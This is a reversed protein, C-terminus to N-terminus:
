KKKLLWYGEKTGGLVIKYDHMKLDTKVNKRTTFIYPYKWGKMISSVFFYNSKGALFLDVANYVSNKTTGSNDYVMAVRNSSLLLGMNNYFRGKYKIMSEALVAYNGYPLHNFYNGVKVFIDPLMKDNNTLAEKSYGYRTMNDEIANFKKIDNINFRVFSVTGIILAVCLCEIIIKKHTIKMKSLIGIISLAFIVTVLMIVSTLIRAIGYFYYSISSILLSIVNSKFALFLFLILGIIIRSRLDKILFLCIMLRIFGYLAIYDFKFVNVFYPYYDDSIQKLSKNIATYDILQNILLFFIIFLSCSIIILSKKNKGSTRKLILKIVLGIFTLPILLVIYGLANTQFSLLSICIIMSLIIQKKELKVLIMSILYFLIPLSLVRTVSGGYYMATQFRWNEYIRIKIPLQGRAAYGAPVLYFIFLITGFQSLEEDVFISSFLQYTLFTIFYNLIAMCFRCFFVPSIHFLSSLFCYMLEYTNFIRHGQAKAFGFLSNSNLLTGFMYNENMLHPTQYLHVVKAIYYDDRYNNLYYPQSNIFAFTSFVLTLIYIFWYKKLHERIMKGNIGKIKVFLQRNRYILFSFISIFIISYIIFFVKWSVSFLQCPFGVFFGIFFYTFYGTVMKFSFLNKKVNFFKNIETGILYFLIFIVVFLIVSLLYNM